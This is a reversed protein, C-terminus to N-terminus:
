DYTWEMIKKGHVIGWSWGIIVMAYPIFRLGQGPDYYQRITMGAIVLSMQMLGVILALMNFGKSDAFSSVITGSGGLGVINMLFVYLSMDVSVYVIAGPLCPLVDRSGDDEKQRYFKDDSM